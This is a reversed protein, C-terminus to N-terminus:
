NSKKNTKLTVYAWILAIVLAIVGLFYFAKTREMSADLMLQSYVRISQHM